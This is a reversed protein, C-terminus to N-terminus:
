IAFKFLLKEKSLLRSVKFQHSQCWKRLDKNGPNSNHPFVSSKEWFTKRRLLKLLLFIHFMCPIVTSLLGKLLVFLKAFFEWKQNKKWLSIKMCLIHLIHWLPNETIQTPYVTKSCGPPVPDSIAGLHSRQTRSSMNIRLWSAIWKKETTMGWQKNRVKGSAM